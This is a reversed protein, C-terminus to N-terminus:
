TGGHHDCRRFLSPRHVLGTGFTQAPGAIRMLVQAGDSGSQVIRVAGEIVAYARIDDDGQSFIQTQRPLRRIRALDATKQLSREFVGGFLNVFAFSPPDLCATRSM